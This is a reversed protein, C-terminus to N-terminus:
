LQAILSFIIHQRLSTINQLRGHFLPSIQGRNLQLGTVLVIIQWFYFCLLHPLHSSALAM